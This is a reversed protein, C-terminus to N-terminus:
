TPLNRDSTPSHTPAPVTFIRGDVPSLGLCQKILSVTSQTCLQDPTVFLIRWSLAAAANLKEYEKLLAAGRTHRGRTWLGGQIEIALKHEVFCLDFRWKREPHFRFEWEPKPLGQDALFAAVIKPNYSSM